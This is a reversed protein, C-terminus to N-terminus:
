FWQICVVRMSVKRVRIREEDSCPFMSWWKDLFTSFFLTTTHKEQAAEFQPIHAMLFALQDPTAWPRRPM